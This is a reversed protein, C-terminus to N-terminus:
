IFLIEEQNKCNRFTIKDRCDNGFKTGTFSNTSIFGNYGKFDADIFHCEILHTIYFLSFNFKACVFNSKQFTVANFTTKVIESGFFSCDKLVSEKSGFICSSIKSFQFTCNSINYNFRCDNFDCYDFNCNNVDSYFSINRFKVRSLNYRLDSFTKESNFLLDLITKVITPATLVSTPETHQESKKDIIEYLEVSKDQLYSTFLGAVISKYREDEKALQYLAYIGGLVISTNESGLYGIAEGFRKDADYSKQDLNRDEVIKNQKNQAKIRQSNLWLGYIIGAGGLVSLIVKFLEGNPNDKTFNLAIKSYFFCFICFIFLLIIVGVIFWVKYDNWLKRLKKM